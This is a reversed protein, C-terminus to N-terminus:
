ALITAYGDLELKARFQTVCETNKPALTAFEQAM